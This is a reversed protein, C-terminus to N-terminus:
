LTTKPLFFIKERFFKKWFLSFFLTKKTVSQVLGSKKTTIAPLHWTWFAFFPWWEDCVYRGIAKKESLEIRKKRAITRFEAGKLPELPAAIAGVPDTDIGGSEGRGARCFGEWGNKMIKEEWPAPDPDGFILGRIEFFFSQRNIGRYTGVLVQKFNKEEPGRPPPLNWKSIETKKSGIEGGRSERASCRDLVREGFSKISGIRM